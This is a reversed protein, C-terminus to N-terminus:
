KKMRFGPYNKIFQVMSRNSRMLGIWALNVLAAFGFVLWLEADLPETFGKTLSIVALVIAAIPLWELIDFFTRWRM